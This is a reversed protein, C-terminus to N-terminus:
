SGHKALLRNSFFTVYFIPNKYNRQNMFTQFLNRMIVEMKLCALVTAYAIKDRKNRDTRRDSNFM